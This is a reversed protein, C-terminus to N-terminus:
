MQSASSLLQREQSTTSRVNAEEREYVSRSIHWECRNCLFEGATPRDGRIKARIDAFRESNWIEEISSDLVNGLIVEQKYDMCCLTVRGDSLIHLWQTDRHFRCLYPPDDKGRAFATTDESGDGFITLDVQDARSNVHWKSIEVGLDRWYAEIQDEREPSWLGWLCVICLKFPRQAKWREIFALVNAMATDFKVGPMTKAYEEATTGHSSIRLECIPSALIREAIKPTLYMGTTSVEFHTDPLARRLAEIRDFIKRDSMSDAMLYPSLYEIPLGCLQDVIRDFTGDTMLGNSWRPSEVPHPCISCAAGCATTTQIQVHTPFPPVPM